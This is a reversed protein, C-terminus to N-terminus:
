VRLSSKCCRARRRVVAHVRYRRLATEAKLRLIDDDTELKFSVVFAAPAWDKRLQGTSPASCCSVLRSFLACCMEGASTGLFKPVPRLALTLGEPAGADKGAFAPDSQIKHEPLDRRLTSAHRLRYKGRSLM